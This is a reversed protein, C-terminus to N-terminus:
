ASGEKGETPMTPLLSVLAGTAARAVTTITTLLVNRISANAEVKYHALLWPVHLKLRSQLDVDGNIAALATLDALQKGLGTEPNIDELISHGIGELGSVLAQGLNNSLAKFEVPAVGPPQRQILHDTYEM